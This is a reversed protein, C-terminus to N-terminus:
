KITQNRLLNLCFIENKKATTKELNQAKLSTQYDPIFDVGTYIFNNFKYDMFAKLDGYGCGLDMVLCNNLDAIQTILEFRKQQNEIAKWGQAKASNNGFEKIRNQHYWIIKGKEITNM